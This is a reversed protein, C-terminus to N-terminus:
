RDLGQGPLMAMEVMQQTRAMEQGTRVELSGLEALLYRLDRNRRRDLDELLSGLIGELDRADARERRDLEDRFAALLIERQTAADEKLESAERELAARDEASLGAAAPRLSLSVEPGSATWSLRANFLALSAVLLLAAAAALQAYRVLGRPRPRGLFVVRPSEVPEELSRAAQLRVRVARLAALEERCAECAELHSDLRARDPDSIEGYLHEMLLQKMAHCNSESMPNM